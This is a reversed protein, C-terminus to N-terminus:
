KRKRWVRMKGKTGWVHKGCAVCKWPGDGNERAYRRCGCSKCFGVPAAFNAAVAPIESVICRKSKM